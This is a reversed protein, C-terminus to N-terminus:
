YINKLSNSIFSDEVFIDIGHYKIPIHVIGGITHEINNGYREYFTSDGIYDGVEDYKIYHNTIIANALDIDQQKTLFKKTFHEIKNYGLANFTATHNPIKTVTDSKIIGFLKDHKSKVVEITVDQALRGGLSHGSIFYDRSPYKNCIGRYSYFAFPLQPNVDRGGALLDTSIDSLAQTGLNFDTGRLSYIINKGNSIAVYGFGSDSIDSMKDKLFDISLWYNDSKGSNNAGVVLWDGINKFKDNEVSTNKLFKGVHNELNNYSLKAALALTYDTVDYILPNKDKSDIIGDGDTDQKNPNTGLKREEFDSLGDDDTDAKNPNSKYHGKNIEVTTEEIDSLGDKDTDVVIDKKYYYFIQLIDKSTTIHYYKGGTQEALKKLLAEDISSKSGLGMTFIKTNLSKAKQIVKDYEVSSIHSSDEGDTFLVIVKENQKSHVKSDKEIIDIADQLGNKISTGGSSDIRNIANKAVNKDKTIGQLITSSDDFDIVAISDKEGLTDILDKSAQLRLNGRDNDSMPGSSDMVFVLYFPKTSYKHNKVYDSHLKKALEIEYENCVVYKSFHTPTYTLIHNDGDLVVDELKELEKTNENYYYLTPIFDKGLTKDSPVEFKFQMKASTFYDANIEYGGLYGVSNVVQSDFAESLPSVSINNHNEINTNISITLDIQNAKVSEIKKSIAKEKSDFVLPNLEDKIEDYNSIGDGDFDKDSDKITPNSIYLEERDSLGDGDTDEKDPDTGIKREFEDSFGDEDTDVFDLLWKVLVKTNKNVVFDINLEKGNEDMFITTYGDIEPLELKHGANIQVVKPLEVGNPANEYELKVDYTVGTIKIHPVYRIQKEGTFYTSESPEYVDKLGYDTTIYGQLKAGNDLHKRIYNALEQRKVTNSSDKDEVNRIYEKRTIGSIGRVRKYGDWIVLKTEQYASDGAYGKVTFGDNGNYEKFAEEISEKWGSFDDNRSYKNDVRVIGINALGYEDKPLGNTGQEGFKDIDVLLYGTMYDSTGWGWGLDGNEKGLPRTYKGNNVMHGFLPAYPAIGEWKSEYRIGPNMSSRRYDVEQIDFTRNNEADRFQISASTTTEVFDLNESGVVEENSVSTEGQAFVNNPIMTLTMTLSMVVSLVKIKLRKM